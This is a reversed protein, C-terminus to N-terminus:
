QLMFGLYQNKGTVVAANYTEVAAEVTVVALQKNGSIHEITEVSRVVKVVARKHRKYQHDKM